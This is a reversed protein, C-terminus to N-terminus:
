SQRHRAVARVADSHTQAASPVSLDSSQGCASPLLVANAVVVQLKGPAYDVVPLPVAEEPDESREAAAVEVVAFPKDVVQGVAGV